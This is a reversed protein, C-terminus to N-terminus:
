SLLQAIVHVIGAGAVNGAAGEAITRASNLLKRLKTEDPTKQQTESEIEGLVPHLASREAVPLLPLASKAQAIFDEVAKRDLGSVAAQINQVTSGDSVNGLVGVNQIIFQHTVTAGQAKEEASFNTIGEGLVGAQELDLAWQLILHRVADIIGIMGSIPTFATFDTRVGIASALTDKIEPAYQFTWPRSPRASASRADQELVSIAVGIPLTSFRRAHDPSEFLITQWRGQRTLFKPEGTVLRYPPVDEFRQGIYGNLEANIWRLADQQGLKTAIVKAQLLLTSVPVAANQTDAILRQVPPVSNM